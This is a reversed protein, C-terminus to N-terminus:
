PESPSLDGQGPAWAWDARQERRTARHSLAVAQQAAEDAMRQLDQARELAKEHDRESLAAQWKAFKEDLVTLDSNAAQIAEDTEEIAHKAAAMARIAGHDVREKEIHAITELHREGALTDEALKHRTALTSKAGRWKAEIYLVRQDMVSAEHRGKVLAEEAAVREEQALRLEENAEKVRETANAVGERAADLGKTATEEGQQLAAVEERAKADGAATEEVRERAKLLKPELVTHLTENMVEFSKEVRDHEDRQRKGHRQLGRLRAKTMQLAHEIELGENEKAIEEAVKRGGWFPEAPEQACTTWAVIVVIGWRM